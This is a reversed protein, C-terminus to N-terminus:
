NHKLNQNLVDHYVMDYRKFMSDKNFLNQIRRKNRKGILRRELPNLDLLTRISGVLELKEGPEVLQVSDNVLIRSDGVNSVLCPLGYAMAQGVVTPFGESRSILVFLDLRSYFDVVNEVVGLFEVHQELGLESVYQFLPSKTGELGVGGALFLRINYGGEILASVALLLLGHDKERSIRALMGLNVLERTQFKDQLVGKEAISNDCYLDFGSPVFVIKKKPYGIQSNRNRAFASCSVIVRPLVDALRACLRILCYTPLSYFERDTSGSFLGWIVPRGTVLGTIGGLLDAFYLWTHILDPRIRIVWAVLLLWKAPLLLFSILSSRNFITNKFIPIVVVGKQRLINVYYQEERLNIVYVEHGCHKQWNALEFLLKEAGGLGLSATIHLIKL